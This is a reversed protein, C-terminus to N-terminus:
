ANRSQRQEQISSVIQRNKIILMGQTIQVEDDDFKDTDIVVTIGKTTARLKILRNLEQNNPKFTPDIEKKLKESAHNRIKLPDEYLYDSLKDIDIKKDNQKTYFNIWEFVSREFDDKDITDDPPGIDKIATVLFKTNIQNNTVKDANVWKVFYKSLKDGQNSVLGLYNREEDVATYLNCNLRFGMAIKDININETAGISFGNVTWKINFAEKNRVIIISIFKYSNVQYDIFVYYGGTAFPERKISDALENLSAKSFHIFTSDDSNDLYQNINSYVANTTKSKDFKSYKTLSKEFAIHLETVLNTLGDDVTTLTDSSKYELDVSNAAKELEHIILRNVQM